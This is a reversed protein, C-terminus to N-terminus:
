IMTNRMIWENELIVLLAEYFRRISEPLSPEQLIGKVGRILSDLAQNDLGAAVGFLTGADPADPMTEGQRGYYEANIWALLARYFPARPGRAPVEDQLATSLIALEEDSLRGIAQTLLDLGMTQIRELRAM